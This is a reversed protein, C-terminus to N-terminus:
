CFFSTVLAILILNLNVREIGNKQDEALKLPCSLINHYSEGCFSCKVTTQEKKLMYKNHRSITPPGGGRCKRKRKLAPEDADRRRLTTPRGRSRPECPPLPPQVGTSIWENRGKIPVIIPEYAKKYMSVYYAPDVFQEVEWGNESICALAHSCPCRGMDQM